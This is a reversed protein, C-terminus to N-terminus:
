EASIAALPNVRSARLAPIFVAGLAVVALSASAGALAAADNPVVDFLLSAVLRSTAMVGILGLSIGLVALRVGDILMARLVDSARAGLAMRIGIERTRQVVAYSLVGYVGVVSLGLALGAFCSMLVLVFKPKAVSEAFAEEAPVITSIPQDPNAQRIARKVAAILASPDGATRIAMAVYRTARGSVPRPYYIEFPFKRDDAGMLKLDGSVGVVTIWPRDADLRFRRGIPDENPWLAAALQLDIVAVRASSSLDERTFSRGRLMSVGLTSFFQSDVEAFPVTVDGSRAPV